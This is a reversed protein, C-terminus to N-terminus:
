AVRTVEPAFRLIGALSREQWALRKNTRFEVGYRQERPTQKLKAMWSVLCKISASSMFYLNEFDLVLRRARARQAEEHLDGLFPCFDALTERDCSGSLSVHIEDADMTFVVKLGKKGLQDIIAKLM